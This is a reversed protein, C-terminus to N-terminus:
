PHKNLLVHEDLSYNWSWTPGSIPELRFAVGEGEQIAVMRRGDPVEIHHSGAFIVDQAFFEANGHLVIRCEERRAIQNKWYLNSATRDIGKNIVKVNHLTCKGGENGYFIIGSADQSGMVNKAEILLSGQLDLNSIDLETIELQLEAGQGLRGGRIKQAIVRYLPGLAPHYLLLLNPGKELFEESTQQGPTEVGCKELLERANEMMEHLCGEPTGVLMAGPKYISKTVSLTKRRLNYTIFTHLRARHEEPKLKQPFRDVLVDAINQMTSELRGGPISRMEGKADLCTVKSKMNILMGPIPHDRAAQQIAKLDVFLINTNSPYLSYPNDQSQPTDDIGKCEFETYEVNTLCYSYGSPEETEILLDVGEATMPLRPCSAFGFAKKEHVGIGLLALVGFDTGAVPNNIQRVLAGQRDQAKFWDFVGKEEALKWIVGHGGPKLILRLNESLAWNGEETVVPVLPQKFLKFSEPPRGFWKKETCIARIHIDNNKEQSTMLAVPTVEQHGFIKYYLYELAQLDRILGELLTFGGFPLTAAPLPEGTDEQCLNLRDGAGGVPYIAGVQPLSEIGWRLANRVDQSDDSLNIGEPRLYKKNHASAESAGKSSILKLVKAHYGVIGGVKRYSSEMEVLTDLMKQLLLVSEDQGDFGRFVLGGQGIALVALIVCRSQPSADELFAKMEPIEALYTKVAPLDRLIALKNELSAKKLQEVLPDLEAIQQKLSLTEMRTINVQPGKETLPAKRKWKVIFQGRLYFQGM